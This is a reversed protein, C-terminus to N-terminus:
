SDQTASYPAYGTPRLPGTGTGPPSPWCPQRLMTQPPTPTSPGATSTSFSAFNPGAARKNGNTLSHNKALRVVLVAAKDVFDPYFEEGRFSASSM